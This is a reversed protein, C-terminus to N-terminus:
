YRRTMALFAWSSDGEGRIRTRRSADVGSHRHISAPADVPEVSLATKGSGLAGALAQKPLSSLIAPTWPDLAVISTGGGSASTRVVLESRGILM